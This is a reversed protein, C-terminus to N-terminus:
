GEMPSPASGGWLESIIMGSLILGAGLFIKGGFQEGLVLRSTLAAFVPELAFILATHAPPTFQQAWNQVSFAFATPLLATVLIAAILALTWTLRGRLGLPWATSALLGVTLIQVPVLHRFSFRRTYSGVLVIHVAFSTAAILTLLDGRNVAHMGSPLVLFYIGLLGLFAGVATAKRLHFGQLSQFFPVLIVAFGTIFASKSPTTYLLGSTQFLYGAFLVVGLIVGHVLARFSMRGGRLVLFLLIGALTFRIAIFPLPSADRLAGKVIVFTSGWIITVLVLLAEAKSRARLEPL